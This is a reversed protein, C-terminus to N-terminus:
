EYTKKLESIVKKTRKISKMKKNLFLINSIVNKANAGYHKLYFEIDLERNKNDEFILWKEFDIEGADLVLFYTINEYDYEYYGSTNVDGWKFTAKPKIFTHKSTKNLYNIVEQKIQEQTKM